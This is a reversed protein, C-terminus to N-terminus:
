KKDKLAQEIAALKDMLGSSKKKPPQQSRIADATQHWNSPNPHRGYQWKEKPKM